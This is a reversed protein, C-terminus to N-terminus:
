NENKKLPYFEGIDSGVNFDEADFIITEGDYELSLRIDVVFQGEIYKDDEYAQLFLYTVSAGKLDDFDMTNPCVIDANDMSIVMAKIASFRDCEWSQFDIECKMGDKELQILGVYVLEDVPAEKFKLQLEGSVDHTNFWKRDTIGRKCVGRGNEERWDCATKYTGTKQDYMCESCLMMEANCEHCRVKYNVTVPDLNRFLNESGCEPCVEVVEELVAM